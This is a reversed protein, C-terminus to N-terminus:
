RVEGAGLEAEHGPPCYLDDFILHTQECAVCRLRVFRKFEVDEAPRGVVEVQHGTAPCRYVVGSM